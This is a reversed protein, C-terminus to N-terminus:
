EQQNLTNPTSSINPTSSTTNQEQTQAAPQPPNLIKSIAEDLELLIKSDLTFLSAYTTHTGFSKDPTESKPPSFLLKEKEEPTEIELTYAAPSLGYNALTLSDVKDSVFEKIQLMYLMELLESVIAADVPKESPRVMQWIKKDRNQKLEIEKAPTKLQIRTVDHVEFFLAKKDRWESIPENLLNGVSSPIVVIQSERNNKILAYSSGPMPTPNGIDLAYLKQPTQVEIRVSGPNLGFSKLSAEYQSDNQTALTTIKEGTSLDELVIQVMSEIASAKIPEEIQWRKKERVLVMRGKPTQIILKQADKPEFPLIKKSAQFKEESDPQYQLEFYIYSCLAAAIAALIFLTSKKM